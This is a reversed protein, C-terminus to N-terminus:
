ELGRVTLGVCAASQASRPPSDSTERPGTAHPWEQRRVGPRVTTSPGPKVSGVREEGRLTPARRGTGPRAGSSARSCPMPPSMLPTIHHSPAPGQCEQSRCISGRSSDALASPGSRAHGCGGRTTAETSGWDICGEPQDTGAWTLPEVTDDTGGLPPMRGNVGPRRHPVTFASRTRLARPTGCRLM